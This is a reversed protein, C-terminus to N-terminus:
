TVCPMNLPQWDFNVWSISLNGLKIKGFIPYPLLRSREWYNYNWNNKCHAISTGIFFAHAKYSIFNNHSINISSSSYLRIGYQNYEFTNRRIIISSCLMRVSIGHLNEIINNGYILHNSSNQILIGFHGNRITFGRIAVQDAFITIIDSIGEGDIITKEKDDGILNISKDLIINEYYIGNYVFITDDNSANDIADQINSYNGPGSGGVYFMQNNLESLTSSTPKYPQSLPHWDFNLWTFKINELKIKGLIIYPTLRPREWYNKDWKNKCHSRNKGVFYANLKDNKLTNYSVTNDSSYELYIGDDNNTIKNKTINNGSSGDLYIGIDDNDSIINDNIINNSSDSFWIGFWKNDIMNNNFIINNYSNSFYIGDGSNMLTNESITNSYSMELHLGTWKNEFNNDSIINDSAGTLYIGNENNTITNGSVFNDSSQLLYIGYKNNKITNKLIINYTSDSGQVYIGQGKNNSIVNGFISTYNSNFIKIGAYQWNDKCNRITFGSINIRDTSIYVVDGRKGGDIVTTSNNEGILNISKNVVINEYYPSSDDYVFISCGDIAKDIADQIRSHNGSGTGGVYLINEDLPQISSKGIVIGNRFPIINVAIILIVLIVIIGKNQKKSLIKKSM